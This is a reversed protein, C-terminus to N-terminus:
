IDYLHQWKYSTQVQCIWEQNPIGTGQDWHHEATPTDENLTAFSKASPMVIDREIKLYMELLTM